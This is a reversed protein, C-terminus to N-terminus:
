PTGPAAPAGGGNAPAGGGEPAGLPSLGPAAPVQYDITGSDVATGKYRMVMQPFAITLGIMIVQICVFPVAGWYIQGTTVPAIQKGTLRDLYPVRA